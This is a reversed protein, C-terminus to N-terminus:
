LNSESPEEVLEKPKAQDAAQKALETIRALAEFAVDYAEGYPAGVPMYFHYTRENKKIEIDIVNRIEM